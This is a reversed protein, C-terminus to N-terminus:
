RTEFQIPGEHLDLRVLHYPHTIVTLMMGGPDPESVRSTVRLADGVSSVEVIEVGYGSSSRSGLFVGIVMHKSFDIMPRPDAPTQISTFEDWLDKWADEDRVFIQRAEEVGCQDGRLLTEFTSSEVRDPEEDVPTTSNKMSWECGTTLVLVLLWGLWHMM